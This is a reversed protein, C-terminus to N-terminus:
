CNRRLLRHPRCNSRRFGDPDKPPPNDLGLVERTAESPKGEMIKLVREQNKMYTDINNNYAHLFSKWKMRESIHVELCSSVMPNNNSPPNPNMFQFLLHEFNESEEDTLSAALKDTNMELSTLGKKKLWDEDFTV